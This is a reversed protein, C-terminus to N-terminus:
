YDLVADSRKAANEHEERENMSKTAEDSLLERETMHVFKIPLIAKKILASRLVPNNLHLAAMLTRYRSMFDNKSPFETMMTEILEVSVEAGQCLDAMELTKSKDPHTQITKIVM